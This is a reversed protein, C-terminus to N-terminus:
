GQIRFPRQPTTRDLELCAKCRFGPLVGRAATGAPGDTIRGLASQRTLDGGTNFVSFFQGSCTWLEFKQWGQLNPCMQRKERDTLWVHLQLHFATKSYFTQNGPPRPYATSGPHVSLSCIPSHSTLTEPLVGLRPTSHCSPLRM